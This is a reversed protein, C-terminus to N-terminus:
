LIIGSYLPTKRRLKKYNQSPLFICMKSVLVTTNLMGFSVESLEGLKLMGFRVEDLEGLKLMGFSVEGLESLKLM